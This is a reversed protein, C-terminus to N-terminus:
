IAEKAPIIVFQFAPLTLTGDDSALHVFQVRNALVEDANSIVVRRDPIGIESSQHALCEDSIMEIAAQQEPSVSMNTLTLMDCTFLSLFASYNPEDMNSDQREQISFCGM